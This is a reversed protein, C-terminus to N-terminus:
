ALEAFAWAPWPGTITVDVGRPLEGISRTLARRWARVDERAVLHYVSAFWPSRERRDHREARVERVYPRTAETVAAIEPVQQRAIREALWRTGPGVRAPISPPSPRGSVRLTLQVAGRVREFAREIADAPAALVHELAARDPVASGFRLPLVAPVLRAIRRVVREHAVIARPTAERVAAPEVVVFAPGARVVTLEKRGIGKGLLEKQRPRRDVLAYLYLTM